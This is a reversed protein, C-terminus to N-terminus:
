RYLQATGGNNDAVYRDIRRHQQLKSRRASHGSSHLRFVSLFDDIDDQPAHQRWRVRCTGVVRRNVPLFYQRVDLRCRHLHWM